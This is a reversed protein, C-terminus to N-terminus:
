GVFWNPSNIKSLTQASTSHVNFTAGGPTSSDHILTDGFSLAIQKVLDNTIHFEEKVRGALQNSWDVKEKKNNIIDECDKNLLNVTETPLEAKLILPSFPRILEVKM